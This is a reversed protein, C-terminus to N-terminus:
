WLSGYKAVLTKVCKLAAEAVAEDKKAQDSSHKFARNEHAYENRTKRVGKNKNKIGNMNDYTDQDVLRRNYLESLISELKKLKVKPIRTKTQKSHQKLIKKGLDQFFACSLSFVEGYNKAGKALAM